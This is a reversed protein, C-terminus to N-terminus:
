HNSESRIKKQFLYDEEQLLIEVVEKNNISSPFPNMSECACVGIGLSNVDEPMCITVLAFTHM